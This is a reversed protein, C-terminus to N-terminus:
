RQREPQPKFEVVTKLRLQDGDVVYYYSGCPADPVCGHIVLLRSNLKYELGRPLKPRQAPGVEYPFDASGEVMLRGSIVDTIVYATCETGCSFKVVRYHGAFDAPLTAAVTISWNKLSEPPDAPDLEPSHLPGRYQEAVPFDKFNLKNNAAHLSAGIVAATALLALLGRM